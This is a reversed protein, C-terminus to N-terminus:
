DDDDDKGGEHKEGREDHGKKAGEHKEGGKGHDDDDDDDDDGDEDKPRTGLTVQVTKKWGDRDVTLTLKEGPARKALAAVLEQPSSVSADGVKVIRDGPKLEAKAAATNAIIGAVIAGEGKQSLQIGLFPRGAPAQPKPAATPAAANKWAVGAADVLICAPAGDRATGSVEYVTTKQYALKEGSKFLKAACARVADPVSEPSLTEREGAIALSTLLLAAFSSVILSRSQM